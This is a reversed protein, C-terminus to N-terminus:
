NENPKYEELNNIILLVDDKTQATVTYTLDGIIIYSQAFLLETSNDTYCTFGNIKEISLNENEIIAKKFDPNNTVEISVEYSNTVYRVTEYMKEPNELGPEDYIDIEKLNFGSPLETPYLVNMQKEELFDEISNYVTNEGNQIVTIGHLETKEGSFMDFVKNGLENLISAGNWDFAVTSLLTTVLVFLVVCAAILLAKLSRKKKRNINVINSEASNFVKNRASEIQEKSLDERGELEMLFDVCENILDIDMEDDSKESELFIITRIKEALIKKDENNYQNEM